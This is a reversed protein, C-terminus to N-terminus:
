EVLQKLRGHRQNTLYIANGSLMGHVTIDQQDNDERILDRLRDLPAIVEPNHSAGSYEGILGLTPGYVVGGDAFKPIMTNFLAAATGGAAAAIPVALPGLFSNKVLAASVMSAIGQAILASITRRINNLLENGFDQMTEMGQIGMNMITQGIDMFATNLVTSVSTIESIRDRLAEYQKTAIEIEDSTGQAQAEKLKETAEALAFIGDAWNTINDFRGIMEEQIKEIENTWYAVAIAKNEENDSFLALEQEMMARAQQLRTLGDQEIRKLIHDRQLQNEQETKMNELKVLNAYYLEIEAREEASGAFMELTRQKEHEIASIRNMSFTIMQNTLEQQQKRIGDVLEKQKKQEETIDGEFVFNVPIDMAEFDVLGDKNIKLQFDAGFEEPSKNMYDALAILKDINDQIAKQRARSNAVERITLAKTESEKAIEMAKGLKEYISVLGETSATRMITLKKEAEALKNQIDTYEASGVAAEKLRQTYHSISNELDKITNASAPDFQLDKEVAATQKGLLMLAADVKNIEKAYEQLTISGAKYLAFFEESRKNLSTTTEDLESLNLGKVMRSFDEVSGTYADMTAAAKETTQQQKEMLTTMADGFETVATSVNNYEETYKKLAKIGEDRMKNAKRLEKTEEKTLDLYHYVGDLLVARKAEAEAVKAEAQAQGMLAKTQREILEGYEGEVAQIMYKEKLRVLYNDLAKTNNNYLVGEESLHGNYAPVLKNLEAVAEKRRQLPANANEAIHQLMKIHSAEKSYLEISKEQVRQHAKETETLSRTRNAFYLIAAGAAIIAAAIAVYPNALIVLNLKTWQITLFGVAKSLALFGTTLMPIVTTMLMGLILLLPGLAAVVAAIIVVAKKTSDNWGRMTAALGALSAGIRELIPAFVEGLTKGLAQTAASVGSMAKQWKHEMTNSATEFAHNLAGSSNSLSDFIKINDEVNAGMLDLIGSLARINPMVQTMADEGFKNTLERIEMLASLLGEDKIKKRLASSSTGMSEFAKEAQKTPRLLAAMIGKLQTSATSADTGTRTMAAIAASVEHFQIQMEAAIPLVQGMAAVLEPAEAKGERVAAVLIDTAQSASINAVGYANMASTVLDAIVATEGLGAVSAKAAMNLVDMAEAGRIGASTIFFLADAMEKTSKGLKPAMERIADGWDNVQDQAIGVLGVIKSMSAEFDKELKFAGVGVGVITTTLMLSMTKGLKKIKEGSAKMSKNFTEIKGETSQAWKDLDQQSKLLADQLPKIDAGIQAVLQGIVSPSM